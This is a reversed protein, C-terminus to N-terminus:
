VCPLLAIAFDLHSEQIEIRLAYYEWWYVIKYWYERKHCENGLGGPLSTRGLNRLLISCWLIQSLQISWVKLLNWFTLHLGTVAAHVVPSVFLKMSHSSPCWSGEWQHRWSYCSAYRSLRPRLQKKGAGTHKEWLIRGLEPEEEKERERKEKM